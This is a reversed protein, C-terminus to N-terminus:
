VLNDMSVKRNGMYRYLINRILNCFYINSNHEFEFIHNELGKYDSHYGFVNLAKNNNKNYTMRPIVVEFKECRILIDDPHKDKHVMNNLGFYTVEGNPIYLNQAPFYLYRDTIIMGSFTFFESNYLFIINAPYLSIMKKANNIIGKSIGDNSVNNNLFGSGNFWLNNFCMISFNSMDLTIYKKFDEMSVAPISNIVAINKYLETNLICGLLFDSLRSKYYTFNKMDSLMPFIGNFQYNRLKIYNDIDYKDFDIDISINKEIQLDYERKEDVSLAKPVYITKLEDSDSKKIENLMSNPTGCYTCFRETNLMAQGCKECKVSSEILKTNSDLTDPKPTEMREDWLISNNGYRVCIIKFLKVLASLMEKAPYVDCKVTIKSNNAGYIEIINDILKIDNVERFSIKNGRNKLDHFYHQTLIFGRFRDIFGSTDMWFYVGGDSEKIHRVAPKTEEYKIFFKDSDDGKVWAYSICGDYYAKEIKLYRCFEDFSIGQPFWDLMKYDDALEPDNTLMNDIKKYFENLLKAQFSIEPIVELNNKQLFEDCLIRTKIYTEKNIPLDDREMLPKLKEAMYIDFNRGRSLEEEYNPYLFDVNWFQIYKHLEHNPYEVLFPILSDYYRRNGPDNQICKILEKVYFDKDNKGFKEANEYITHAEGADLQPIIIIRHEKLINAYAWFANIVCEKLSYCVKLRIYPKKQKSILEDKITDRIDKARSADGFSHLIGSGANLIAADMSGKIAGKLGFGGGVWKGRSARRAAENEQLEDQYAMIRQYAAHVEKCKDMYDFDYRYSYESKFQAASINIGSLYLDKIMLEIANKLKLEGYPIINSVVESLDNTKLYKENIDEFLEDALKHYKGYIKCFSVIKDSYNVNVPGLNFTINNEEIENVEEQSKSLEDNSRNDKVFFKAPCGCKLCNEARESIMSGCDPCKVLGM